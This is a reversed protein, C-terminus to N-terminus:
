EEYIYRDNSDGVLFKSLIIYFIFIWLTFILWGIYQHTFQLADMGFYHGIIVIITMRFLNALYSVLLGLFLIFINGRFSLKQQFNLFSFLFAFFVKISIIGSCSQAISVSQYVGSENNEFFVELGEAHSNYGLLNLINSLPASLFINVIPEHDTWTGSSSGIGGYILKYLIFPLIEFFILLSFFLIFIDMEKNYEAPISDYFFLLLAFTFILFDSQSFYWDAFFEYIFVILILLLAFLKTLSFGYYMYSYSKGINSKEIDLFNLNKILLFLSLFLVPLSFIAPYKDFFFSLVTSETFFIIFFLIKINNLFYKEALLLFLLSLSSIILLLM